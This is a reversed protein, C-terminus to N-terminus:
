TQPAKNSIPSFPTETTASLDKLGSFFNGYQVELAAAVVKFMLGLNGEYHSNFDIQRGNCLVDRSSLETCLDMIEDTTGNTLAELAQALVEGKIGRDFFSTSNTPKEGVAAVGLAFPRGMVKGLRLLTRLAHKAGYQSFEYENGGIIKKVTERAM